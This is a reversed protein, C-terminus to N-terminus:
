FMMDSISNLLNIFRRKDDFNRILISEALLYTDAMYKNGKSDSRANKVAMGIEFVDFDRHLQYSIDADGEYKKEIDVNNEKHIEEYKCKGTSTLSTADKSITCLAFGDRFSSNLIKNVFSKDIKILTAHNMSKRKLRLTANNANVRLVEIIVGDIVTMNKATNRIRKMM